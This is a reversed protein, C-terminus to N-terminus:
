SATSLCKHCCSGVSGYFAFDDLDGSRGDVDLEGFVLDGDDVGRDM